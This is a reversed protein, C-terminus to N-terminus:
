GNGVDVSLRFWLWFARRDDPFRVAGGVVVMGGWGMVDGGRWGMLGVGLRGGGGLKVGGGARCQVLTCMLCSTVSIDRGALGDVWGGGEM